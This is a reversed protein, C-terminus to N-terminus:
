HLQTGRDTTNTSREAFLHTVKPQPLRAATTHRDDARTDPSSPTPTKPSPPTARSSDDHRSPSPTWAIRREPSRQSWARLAEETPSVPCMGSLQRRRMPAGMRHHDRSV